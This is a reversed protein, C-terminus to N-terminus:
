FEEDHQACNFVFIGRRRWMKISEPDSDFVSDIPAKRFFVKGQNEIDPGPLKPWM